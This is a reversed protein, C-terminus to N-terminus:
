FPLDEQVEPEAQQAPQAKAQGQKGTPYEPPPPVSGNANNNPEYISKGRFKASLRELTTLSDNLHEPDNLFVQTDDYPNVDNIPEPDIDTIMKVDDPTAPETGKRCFYFCGTSTQPVRISIFTDQGIQYKRRVWAKVRIEKRKRDSDTRFITPPNLVIGNAKCYVELKDKFARMAFKDKKYESTETFDIYDSHMTSKDIPTNFHYEHSFFENLYEVTTEGLSTNLARNQLERMPPQIRDKVQMFFQIARAAFNVNDNLTESSPSEADPYDEVITRLKKGELINESHYYDSMGLLFLRRQTSDGRLDYQFNSTLVFIPAEEKPLLVGNQYLRRAEFGSSAFNYLDEIELQRSVDELHVIDHVRYRFHKFETGGKDPKFSKGNVNCVNRAYELVYKALMSKGTGGSSQGEKKVAAETIYLMYPTRPSRYRCWAMGLACVKNIFHMNHEQIEDDTLMRGDEEKKWHIRGMNYIMKVISPQENFPKNWVLTYKYLKSMDDVEEQLAKLNEIPFNKDKKKEILLDEKKQFEPNIRISFTPEKQLSFDCDKVAASDVFYPFQHYHVPTIETPTIKVACNRMFLYDTKYNWSHFDLDIVLLNDMKEGSIRPSDIIASYLSENYFRSSRIYNKMMARAIGSIADKSVFDVQADKVIVYEGTKDDSKPDVTRFLGQSALFPYVRASNISYTIKTVNGEKDTKQNEDWFKLSSASAMLRRFHERVAKSRSYGAYLEAGSKKPDYLNFYDKADKCPRKEGGKYVRYKKLDEPLFLLRLDIHQLGATLAKQKGTDDIDFMIYKNVSIKDMSKWMQETFEPTESNLWCVQASSNYYTNIADSGGSCIILDWLKIGAGELPEGKETKNRIGTVDATGYIRKASKQVDKTELADMVLANGYIKQNLGEVKKKGAKYWFSFRRDTNDRETKVYRPQYIRGWTSNDYMFVFIPFSDTAEVKVSFKRGNKEQGPRTYSRVPYLSFDRIIDTPKFNDKESNRNKFSYEYLPKGDEGLKHTTVGKENEIVPTCECGLARLEHITFDDRLDFVYDDVPSVFTVKGNLSTEEEENLTIGAYSAVDRVIEVFDSNRNRNSLEAELEIAGYGSKGCSGFCKWIAVSNKGGTKKKSIKFSGTKEHHFPCCYVHNSGDEKLQSLGHHSMVTNLDVQDVAAISAESIQKM